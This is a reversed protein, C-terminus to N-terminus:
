NITIKNTDATRLITSQNTLFNFNKEEATTNVKNIAMTFM